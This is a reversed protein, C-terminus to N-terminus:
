LGAFDAKIRSVAVPDLLLDMATRAMTHAAMLMANLGQPQAACAAAERTHFAVTEPWTAVTFFIAPVAQSVNGFDTSVTSRWAGVSEGLASLNARVADALAQNYRIPQMFATERIDLRTGSALAGARACEVVRACLRDLEAVDASRVGIKCVAREPIVNVAQGGDSIIGHIRTRDPTFQRLANLNTYTLLVGDLASAGAWPEAAAHAPRGTFAFEYLRVGTCEEMLATAHWPHYTLAADLGAFAGATLMMPKGTGLEEAPCGYVKITGPLHAMSRALFVGAGIASGAILNHGCGHDVGPLADYEALFGITPGPGSGKKTAVFATDIGPVIAFEFGHRLLLDRCWGVAQHEQHGLEPHAHIRLSFDTVEDALERAARATQDKVDATGTM